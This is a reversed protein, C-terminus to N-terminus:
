NFILAPGDDVEINYMCTSDAKIAKVDLPEGLSPSQLILYLLACGNPSGSLALWDDKDEVHGNGANTTIWFTALTSPNEIQSRKISSLKVSSPPTKQQQNLAISERILFYQLQNAWIQNLNMKLVNDKSDQKDQPKPARNDNATMDVKGSETNRKFTTQYRVPLKENKLTKHNYEIKLGFAPIPKQISGSRAPSGM